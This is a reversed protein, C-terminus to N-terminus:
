GNSDAESILPESFGDAIKRPRGRPRVAVSRNLTKAVMAQFRPSGLAREQQIHSRIAALGEDALGSRLWEGYAQARGTTDSGLMM